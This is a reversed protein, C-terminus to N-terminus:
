NLAAWSSSNVTGTAIYVKSNSTNIYLDGIKGPAVSPAGTGTALSPNKSLTQYVNQFEREDAPDKHPLLPTQTAHVVSWLSFVFLFVWLLQWHIKM